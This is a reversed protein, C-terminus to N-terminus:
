RWKISTAHPSWTLKCLLGVLKTGALISILLKSIFSIQVDNSNVLLARPAVSLNLHVTVPVFRNRLEELPTGRQWTTGAASVRPPVLRQVHLPIM